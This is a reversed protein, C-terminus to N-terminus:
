AIESSASLANPCLDSVSDTVFRDADSVTYGKPMLSAEALSQVATM